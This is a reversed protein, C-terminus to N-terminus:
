AQQPKNHTTLLTKYRVTTRQPDSKIVPALWDTDLLKAWAPSAHPITERPHRFFTAKKEQKKRIQVNIENKTLKKATYLM